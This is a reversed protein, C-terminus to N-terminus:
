LPQRSVRGPAGSRETGFGPHTLVWGEVLRLGRAARPSAITFCAQRRWERRSGHRADRIPTKMGSGGNGTMESRSIVEGHLPTSKLGGRPKPHSDRAVENRTANHGEGMHWRTQGNWSVIGIGDRWRFTKVVTVM